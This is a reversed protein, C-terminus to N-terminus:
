NSNLIPWSATSVVSLMLSAISEPVALSCVICHNLFSQLPSDQLYPTYHGAMPLQCHGISLMSGRVVVHSTASSSTSWEITTWGKFCILFTFFSSLHTGGWQAHTSQRKLQTQSKTVRHVTARWAGRDMPKELCSYQFPNGHRGGPFRGIKSGLWRLRRWQLRNKIWQAVQSAQRM